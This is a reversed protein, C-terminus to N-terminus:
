RSLLNWTTMSSYAFPPLREFAEASRALGQAAQSMPMTWKYQVVQWASECFECKIQAQGMLTQNWRWRSAIKTCQRRPRWVVASFATLSPLCVCDPVWITTPPRRRMRTEHQCVERHTSCPSLNGQWCRGLEIAWFYRHIDAWHSHRLPARGLLILSFSTSVVALSM